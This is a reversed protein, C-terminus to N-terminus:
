GRRPQKFPAVEIFDISTDSSGSVTISLFEGRQTYSMPIRITTQELSTNSPTGTYTKTTGDETVVKVTIPGSFKGSVYMFRLQKIDTTGYQSQPLEFWWSIAREDSTTTYVDKDGGDLTFIGDPGGGLPRGQFMCFDTFNFGSYQTIGNNRLNLRLTTM